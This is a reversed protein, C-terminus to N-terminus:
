TKVLRGFQRRVHDAGVLNRRDNLHIDEKVPKPELGAMNRYVCMAIAMPLAAQLGYFVGVVGALLSLLVPAGLGMLAYALYSTKNMARVLVHGFGLLFSFPLPAILGMMWITLLQSQAALGLMEGAAMHPSEHLRLVLENGVQITYRALGFFGTSILSAVFLLPVSTRVQLPGNFYEAGGTDVLAGDKSVTGAAPDAPDGKATVALARALLAPDDGEAELGARWHYLFGIIAGALAIVAVVVSLRGQHIVFLWAARPVLSAMSALAAFSGAMAYSWRASIAAKCLGLHFILFLAVYTLGGRLASLVLVDISLAHTEGPLSGDGITVMTLVGSLVLGTFLASVSTRVTM